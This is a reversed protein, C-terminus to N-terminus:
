KEILNMFAFLIAGLPVSHKAIDCKPSNQNGKDWLFSVLSIHTLSNVFMCHQFVTQMFSIFYFNLQKSETKNILEQSNKDDLTEFM